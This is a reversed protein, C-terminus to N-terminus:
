TLKPERLDGSTGQTGQPRKLDGLTGQLDGLTRQTGRDRLNGTSRTSLSTSIQDLNM